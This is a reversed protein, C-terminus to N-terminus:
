KKTFTSDSLQYTDGNAVFETGSFDKLTIANATTGVKFAVSNNKFSATFDAGIQLMDQAGFAFIVDKGGGPNYIFTDSGDGGWLTDNGGGGNLTSDFDGAQIWNNKANGIIEVEGDVAADDITTLKSYNAASFIQTDEALTVATAKTTTNNFIGDQAYVNVVSKGNEVLTIKDGAADQITLSNGGEFGLIVDGDDISYNKIQASGLSIKDTGALYDAITDDGASVVFTDKGAGGILVDDGAGGDVTVYYGHSSIYDAGNGGKLLVIQGGNDVTDDGDGADITVNDYQNSSTDNGGLLNLKTKNATPSLNEPADSGDVFQTISPPTASIDPGGQVKIQAFINTAGKLTVASKEFQFIVDEGADIKRYNETNGTYRGIQLTSTENFGEIVTFSGYYGPEFIFVVNEGGNNVITDEYDGGNITVNNGTNVIYDDESGGFISSNDGSNEITDDGHDEDITVNGAANVISDDGAGM